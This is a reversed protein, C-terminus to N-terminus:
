NQIAAGLWAAPPAHAGPVPTVTTTCHCDEIWVRHAGPACSDANDANLAAPNEGVIALRSGPNRHRISPM